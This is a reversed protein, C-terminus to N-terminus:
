GAELSHSVTSLLTEITFPKTILGSAGADIVREEIELETRGSLFYFPPMMDSATSKIKGPVEFGSMDHLNIDCLILQLENENFQQLAYEGSTSM